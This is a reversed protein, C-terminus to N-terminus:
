VKLQELVCHVYKTVLEKYHVVSLEVKVTGLCGTLNNILKKKKRESSYVMQIISDMETNLYSFLKVAIILM